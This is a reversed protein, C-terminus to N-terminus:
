QPNSMAQLQEQVKKLPIIKTKNGSNVSIILSTEHKRLKLEKIQLVIYKDILEHQEFLKLSDIKSGVVNWKQIYFTTDKEEFQNKRLEKDIQITTERKLLEIRESLANLLISTKPIKPLVFIFLSIIACCLLLVFVVEKYRPIIKYIVWVLYGSILGAFLGGLHAANNFEAFTSLALNLLVSGGISKIMQWRVEKRVFETTVLALFFGLLGFIAGSAGASVGIGTSSYWWNSVMGGAIGCFLYALVLRLSGVFDEIIKGLQILAFMNSAFHLIGFHLFCATVIRWPEGGLTLSPTDGGFLLVTEGTPLMFNGDYFSVALFLLLNLYFIVPTVFYNRRPVFYNFFFSNRSEEQM